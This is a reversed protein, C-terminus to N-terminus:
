QCIDKKSSKTDLNPLCKLSAACADKFLSICEEGKSRGSDKGVTTAPPIKSVSTEKPDTCIGPVASAGVVKGEGYCILGNACQGPGCPKGKPLNYFTAGGTETVLPSKRTVQSQDGTSTKPKAPEDLKTLNISLSKVLDPNITRLIIWSLFAITLGWIAGSIKKRAEGVRNMNDGATMYLISAYLLMILASIGVLGLGAVYLSAIFGGIGQTEDYKIFELGPVVAAMQACYGGRGSLCPNGAALSLDPAAFLLSIFMIIFLLKPSM